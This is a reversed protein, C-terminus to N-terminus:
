GDNKGNNIKTEQFNSQNDYSSRDSKQPNKTRLEKFIQLSKGKRLQFEKGFDDNDGSTYFNKDPSNHDRLIMM